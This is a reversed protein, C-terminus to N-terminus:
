VSMFEIVKCSARMCACLCIYKIVPNANKKQKQMLVRDAPQPPQQLATTRLAALFILVCLYNKLLVKSEIFICFDCHCMSQPIHLSIYVYVTTHLVISTDHLSRILLYCSVVDIYLICTSFQNVCSSRLPFFFKKPPMCLQKFNLLIKSYTYFYPYLM